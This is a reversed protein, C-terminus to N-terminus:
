RKQLNWYQPSSGRAAGNQEKQPVRQRLGLLQFSSNEFSSSQLTRQTKRQQSIRLCMWPVSVRFKEGRKPTQVNQPLQSCKEDRVQSRMRRM